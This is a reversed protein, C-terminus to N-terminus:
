LAKVCQDYWTVAVALASWVHSTIGHLPHGKPPNKGVEVGGWRDILARRVFQDGGRAQGCLYASVTKRPLMTVRDAGFAQAFRGSWWCTDFTENGAPIGYGRIQEIACRLSTGSSPGWMEMQYLLHENTPIGYEGIEKGDWFVFASKEAGPDIALVRM